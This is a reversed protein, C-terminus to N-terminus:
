RSSPCSNSYVGPTQSPCPPRAHQSEYPRLSSSMVSRSFQVSGQFVLQGQLSAVLLHVELLCQTGTVRGLPNVSLHQQQIHQLFCPLHLGSYRSLNSIICRKEGLPWSNEPQGELHNYLCCQPGPGLEPSLMFCSPLRCPVVKSFFSM